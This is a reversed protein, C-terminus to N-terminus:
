IYATPSWLDALPWPVSALQIMDPVDHAVYVIDHYLSIFM